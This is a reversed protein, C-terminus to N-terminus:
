ENVWPNENIIKQVKEICLNTRKEVDEIETKKQKYYALKEEFPLYEEPEKYTHMWDMMDEDAKDIQHLLDIYEKQKSKDLERATIMELKNNMKNLRVNQPMSRDHVVMVEMAAKELQKKKSPKCGISLAFICIYILVRKMIVFTFFNIWFFLKKIAPQLLSLLPVRCNILNLVGQCFLASRLLSRKQKPTSLQLLAPYLPYGSGSRLPPPQGFRKNFFIFGKGM